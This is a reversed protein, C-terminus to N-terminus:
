QQVKNPVEEERKKAKPPKEATKQKQNYKNKTKNIRKMQYYNSRNKKKKYNCIKIWLVLQKTIKIKQKKM